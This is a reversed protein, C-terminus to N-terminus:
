LAREPLLVPRDVWWPQRELESHCIRTRPFLWQVAQEVFAMVSPYTAAMEFLGEASSATGIPRPARSPCGTPEIRLYTASGIKGHPKLHRRADAGVSAVCREALYAEVGQHLGAFVFRLDFDLESACFPSSVSLAGTWRALKHTDPSTVRGHIVAAREAKEPRSPGAEAVSELFAVLRRSEASPSAWEDLREALAALNDDRLALTGREIDRALAAPDRYIFQSLVRYLPYGPSLVQTGAGLASVARNLSKAISFPQGNVPIFAVLCDALLSQEREESWEELRFPLGMKRLAALANQTMARENTLVTLRVEYGGDRLRALEPSFAALDALGVPFDPNDGIGFWCAEIIRTRRTRELKARMAASVAALDSGLAPDNMVHTPLDTYREMMTRISPTSCLVFDTTELLEQLWLRLRFLRSDAVQSFYDDFIDVGVRKGRISLYHALLIARADYCKSVVYLDHADAQAASGIDKLPRVDLEHGADRLSSEIRRYRIRVGAQAMQSATPVLICIRM